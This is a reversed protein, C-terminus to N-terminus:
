PNQEGDRHKGTMDNPQVTLLTELQEEKRRDAQAGFSASKTPDDGLLEPETYLLPSQSCPWIEPHKTHVPPQRAPLSYYTKLIIKLPLPLIGNM